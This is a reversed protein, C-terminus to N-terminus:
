EARLFRVQDGPSLLTPRDAHPTFVEIETRGIIQWGGPSDLSYIGTQKGAIGVSGKPVAQRPSERRPTAIREDVEAMYTFGPLFGLMFVRYTRATFIDVVADPTLGNTHGVHGLDPSSEPDFHMPIDVLRGSVKSSSASQGLTDTVRTKVAEYATKADPFARRVEDVNYFLTTSAYAPVAELFGPFQHEELYNALAIAKNNLDLAIDNGFEITLASDGLPFIRYGDNM